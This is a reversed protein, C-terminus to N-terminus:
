PKASYWSRYLIKSMSLPLYEHCCTREVPFLIGVLLYGAPTIWELVDFAIRSDACVYGLADVPYTLLVRTVARDEPYGLLVYAGSCWVHHLLFTGLGFLSSVLFPLVM